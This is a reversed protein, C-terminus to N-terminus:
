PLGLIRKFKGRLEEKEQVGYLTDIRRGQGDFFVLVTNPVNHRLAFTKGEPTKLNAVVFVAHKKFEPILSDV